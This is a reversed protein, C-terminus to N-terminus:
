SGFLALLETRSFPKNLIVAKPYRSALDTDDGYGTAFAFPVGIAHLREAVQESTHSAVNIDLLAFSPRAKDILALADGNSAAVHVEAAGADQLMDDIDLAIIM